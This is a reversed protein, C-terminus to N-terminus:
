SVVRPKRAFGMVVGSVICFIAAVISLGFAWSLEHSYTAMSTEYPVVAKGARISAGYVIAGIIILVGALIASTLASIKFIKDYRESNLFTFLGMSVLAGSGFMLGIVNLARVAVVWGPVIDDYGVCSTTLVAAQVRKCILWLGIHGIKGFTAAYTLNWYPSALAVIEIIGGIILIVCAVFAARSFREFFKM